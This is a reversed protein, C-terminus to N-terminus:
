LKVVEAIRKATKVSVPSCQSSINKDVREVVAKVLTNTSGLPVLVVSNAQVNLGTCIYWYIGGSFTGETVKVKAFDNYTVGGLRGGAMSHIM